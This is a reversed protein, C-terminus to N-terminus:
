PCCRCRRGAWWPRSAPAPRAGSGPGRRRRQYPPQAVGPHDHEALGVEALPRVDAVLARGGAPARVAAQGAVRVAQVARGAARAGAAAGRDARPMAGYAIPVSVSPEIVQGAAKLPQTPSLGVTPRTGSRRRRASRWSGPSGRGSPSSRAHRPRAARRHEGAVAGVVRRVGHVAPQGALPDAHRALSTRPSCGGRRRARRAPRRAARPRPRSSRRRCRGPRSPRSRRARRAAPSAPRARARAPRGVERGPGAVARAGQGVDDREVALVGVVLERVEPLREELLRQLARADVAASYASPGRRAAERCPRSSPM